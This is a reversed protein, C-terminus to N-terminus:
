LRRETTRSSAALGKLTDLNRRDDSAVVSVVLGDRELGAMLGSITARTVGAAAVIEKHPVGRGKAAWILMLIQFRAPSAASDAMWETIANDLQQATARVAFVASLAELERGKLRNRLAAAITPPPESLLRFSKESGM